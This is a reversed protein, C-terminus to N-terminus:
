PKFLRGFWALVVSTVSRQAALETKAELVDHLKSREGGAMGESSAVSMQRADQEITELADVKQAGSLLPDVVVDHPEVFHASPKQVKADNDVPETM